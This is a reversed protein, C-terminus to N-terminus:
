KAPKETKAPRAPKAAKASGTTLYQEVAKIDPLIQPTLRLTFTEGVAVRTLKTTKKRDVWIVGARIYPRNDKQRRQRALGRLGKQIHPQMRMLRQITKREAERRPAKAITFTVEKGPAVVDPM